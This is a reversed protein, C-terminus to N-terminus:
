KRWELLYVGSANLAYLTLILAALWTFRLFRRGKPQYYLTLIVIGSMLIATLAPLLHTRSVHALIPGRIFLFDDVALVALNFMNSGLLNGVALDVAGMRLASLSTVVEPLSTAIAVFLMGVFTQGWGTAEALAEGIFPLYTAAGIIIVANLTFGRYVTGSPVTKYQPVTGAPSPVLKQQFRYITWMGIFYMVVLVPSYLGFWLISLDIQANALFLGTAAIVLVIVGFGAALIHVQEAKALVVGPHPYLLDLLAIITLNFVCSGLIDGITIDPVDAITVSSVGTILEPLSTVSALLVVGIWTRGLGTKEAIVDAHYSLKIGSYVIVSACLIFQLWLLLM